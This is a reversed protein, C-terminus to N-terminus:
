AFKHKPTIDLLVESRNVSQDLTKGQAFRVDVTCYSDCYLAQAVVVVVVVSSDSIQMFLMSFCYNQVSKVHTKGKQVNQLREQGTKDLRYTASVLEIGLYDSCM